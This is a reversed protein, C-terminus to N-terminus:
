RRRRHACRGLHTIGMEPVPVFGGVPGALLRGSRYRCARGELRTGARELLERAVRRLIAANDVILVTVQSM